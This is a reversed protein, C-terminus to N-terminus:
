GELTAREKGAQVDWLKITRDHSGSALTKGDPSFAVSWIAEKHGKLTAREKGAQSILDKRGKLTAPEKGAQVDRLKISPPPEHPRWLFIAVAMLLVVVALLLYRRM